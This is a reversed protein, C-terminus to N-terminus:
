IHILSLDYGPALGVQDRARQLIADDISEREVTIADCADLFSPLETQTYVPGLGQVVPTEDLCLFAVEAGLRNAAEALMQSLQGCGIIGLRQKM